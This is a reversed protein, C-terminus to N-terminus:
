TKTVIQIQPAVHRHVQRPLRLRRRRPAPCPRGSRWKELEDPTVKTVSVRWGGLTAWVLHLPAPGQRRPRSASASRSESAARSPRM